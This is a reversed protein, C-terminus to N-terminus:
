VSWCRDPVAGKFSQLIFPLCLDLMKKMSPLESEALRVGADSQSSKELFKWVGQTRSGASHVFTTVM